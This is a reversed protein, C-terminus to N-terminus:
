VKLTLVYDQGTGRSVEIYHTGKVLASSGDTTTLMLLQQSVTFEARASGAAPVALRAFDRLQKAPVPYTVSSRVDAGARHYLQLVEDGARDPTSVSCQVSVPLASSNATCSLSFQSYSLGFGFPFLPTNKYYRYTRGAGATMSMDNMSVQSTYAAPYVTVPLKGFRNELGFLTRAIGEAGRLSPYFAQLIAAPSQILEDIAVAGGSVVLLVVPKSGAASIVKQAFSSQLGPLNIAKRDLTEHEITTDIGLCLLVADSAGVVSIAADIGSSDASNIDVGKAVTTTGGVNTSTMFEGITPICADGGHYCQQDGAYDELLGKRSVAHPGVVALKIGQKFPLAKNQNKLLVIGQLVGELNAERNAPSNIKDIGYTTYAQGPLPDFQGTVFRKHLARKVATDLTATTVRGSNVAAKLPGSTFYTSGLEQDMGANISKAAADESNSAYHNSGVMNSVAGCDSGVLVDPCGWRTRLADNLLFNSACSPVGNISAYSCMTMLAGGEVFAMRYHPLYTDWMDFPSIIGNFAGRNAEVSYAAYHKLGAIMKKYKPDPGDQCGKVYQTAYAGTLLPDESPIECNRGFRPDRVINMNPGYGELGIYNDLNARHWDFNNFARMEDSVVRGKEHWLTRNFSAALMAAGAFTTPCTDKTLCAASVATNTEVLHTYAPVGLRTVGYDTFACADTAPNPGILGLKEDLTLRAVLDALRKEVALTADCFPLGKSAADECAHGHPIRSGTCSSHYVIMRNAGGCWESSDSPCRRSQCDSMPAPSPTNDPDFANGCFCQDSYEVASLTYNFVACKAACLELSNRSGEQQATFPLARHADGGDTYCGLIDTVTCVFGASALTAALVLVLLLPLSLSSSAM